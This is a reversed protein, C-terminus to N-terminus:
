CDLVTCGALIDIREIAESMAKLNYRTKPYGRKSGRKTLRRGGFLEAWRGEKDYSTERKYYEFQENLNRFAITRPDDKSQKTHM